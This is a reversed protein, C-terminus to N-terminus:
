CQQYVKRRDLANILQSHPIVGIPYATMINKQPNQLTIVAPNALILPINNVYGGVM